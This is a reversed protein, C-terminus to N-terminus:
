FAPTPASAAHASLSVHAPILSCLEALTTDAATESTARNFIHEQTHTPPSLSIRAVTEVSCLCAVSGLLVLLCGYPRARLGIWPLSVVLGKVTGAEPTGLVKM